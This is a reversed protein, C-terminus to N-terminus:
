DMSEDVGVCGRSSFLFYFFLFCYTLYLVYFCLVIFFWFIKQFCLSSLSRGGRHKDVSGLSLNM